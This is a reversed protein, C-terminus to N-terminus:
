GLRVVVYENPIPEPLQEGAELIGEIHWQLAAGIRRRVIDQTKGVAVCGPLDPIYAGWGGDEAREYVVAYRPAGGPVSREWRM